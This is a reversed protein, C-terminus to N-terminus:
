KQALRTSWKGSNRALQHTTRSETNNKQIDSDEGDMFRVFMECFWRQSSCVSFRRFVYMYIDHEEIKLFLLVTLFLGFNM